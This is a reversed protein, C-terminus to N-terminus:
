HIKQLLHHSLYFIKQNIIIILLKMIMINWLKKLRLVLKLKMKKMLMFIKGMSNLLLMMTLKM